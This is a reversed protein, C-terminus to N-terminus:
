YGFYMCHSTAHTRADTIKALSRGRGNAEEDAMTEAGGGGGEGGGRQGGKGGGRRCWWWKRAEAGAAQEARPSVM